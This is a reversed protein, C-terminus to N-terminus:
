KWTKTITDYYSLGLRYDTSFNFNSSTGNILYVGFKLLQRGLRFKKELAYYTEIHKFHNEALYLGNSGVTIGLRLARLLPIKNMLAGDFTHRYHYEAYPGTTRLSQGLLQQGKLPNTFWVIDGGIFFKQDVLQLSNKWLFGGAAVNYQTQGYSGLFLKDQVRLEAFGFSSISGFLGPVGTKLHININPFKSGLVIKRVDTTRYKQKIRIAIDVDLLLKTYPKFYIPTFLNSLQNQFYQQFAFDISDTYAPLQLSTIPSHHAYRLDTNIYFGNFYERDYGVSLHNVLSYNGPSLNAVVSQNQNMLEYESGMGIKLKSFNFNNYTYATRLQGRWDQNLLGYDVQTYSEFKKGTEKFYKSYTFGLAHRYGGPQFLRMQALLPIFMLYRGKFSNQFEVGFVLVDLLSTHNFSSDVSALYEPTAHAQAISDQTQIFGIEETKLTVPRYKELMEGANKTADPNTKSLEGKFTNKDFVPDIEYNSYLSITNGIYTIGEDKAEYYFEERDCLWIGDANKSFNQVFQLKNYEALSLPSISLDVAKIAWEGDVIFVYGSFLADAPRRPEIAIKYIIDDGERFSEVLRFKYSATALPHLPSTFPLENVQKIYFQNEYLNIDCELPHLYFIFPNVETIPKVDYNEEEGYYFGFNALSEGLDLVEPEDTYNKIAIVEEKINNPKEYYLKAYKEVLNMKEKSTYKVKENTISDREKNLEEKEVSAKVYNNCTYARYQNLYKGRNESAKKMYEYAPDRRKASIEVEGLETVTPKLTVLLTKEYPITVNVSSKEYGLYSFILTYNGGKLEMTFEGKANTVVGYTSQDLYISVGPLPENQQNQVLGRLQFAHAPGCFLLLWLLPLKHSIKPTKLLDISQNIRKCYNLIRENIALWVFREDNKKSGRKLRENAWVPQESAM